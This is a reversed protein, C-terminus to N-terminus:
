ERYVYWPQGSDFVWAEIVPTTIGKMVRHDYTVLLKVKCADGDCTVNEIKAERFSGRRINRKYVDLAITNRSGTSMFAYAADIDDRILADWRSTVRERLLSERAQGAAAPTGVTPVPPTACAALAIVAATAAARCARRSFAVTLAHFPKVLSFKSFVM